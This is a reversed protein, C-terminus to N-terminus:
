FPKKSLKGMKISYIDRSDCNNWGVKDLTQYSDRHQPWMREIKNATLVTDTSFCLFISKYM